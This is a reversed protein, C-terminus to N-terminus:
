PSGVLSASHRLFDWQRSSDFTFLFSCFAFNTKAYSWVYIQVHLSLSVSRRGILDAIKGSAIAGIMAGITLISGFLSYQM